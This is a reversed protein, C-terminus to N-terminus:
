FKLSRTEIDEDGRTMNFSRERLAANNLLSGCEKKKLIVTKYWTIMGQLPSMLSVIRAETPSCLDNIGFHFFTQTSSRVNKWGRPM